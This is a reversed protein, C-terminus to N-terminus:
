ETMYKEITFEDISVNQKIRVPFEKASKESPQGVPRHCHLKITPNSSIQSSYEAVLLSNVDYVFVTTDTNSIKKVRKGDGDYYYQGLPPTVGNKYVQIQKNDGNFVFSRGGDAPDNIINGNKDYTFGQGTNFRNTNADISPTQTSTGIAVV